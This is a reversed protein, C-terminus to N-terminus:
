KQSMKILMSISAKDMYMYSIIDVEDIKSFLYLGFDVVTQVLFSCEEATRELREMMAVMKEKIRHHRDAM